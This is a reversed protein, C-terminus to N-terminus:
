ISETDQLQESDISNLHERLKWNAPHHIISSDIKYPGIVKFTFSRSLLDYYSATSLDELNLTKYIAASFTYTGTGLLLASYELDIHIKNGRQMDVNILEGCHRTIWRGGDDFILIVPICGYNGTETAEVEMLFNVQDGTEIVAIPKNNHDLISVDSIILGTEQSPWRSISSPEAVVTKQSVVAMPDAVTEQTAETVIKELDNNAEPIQGHEQLVEKMLKQTLWKSQIIPKDNTSLQTSCYEKELKRSYAEYSKVLDLSDGQMVIEGNELWISEDCFQLVQTMSHSVLLLTCGNDTLRKMREASKASFYADGAGMVEDIVLIEPKIATAVAFYLRSQMGLSYTKLPQHIFDGLETFDIIDEVTQQYQEAPLGNFLLASKINELGTFEPHFGLGMQMLAQITGNVVVTGSTPMFNQTILKLLTTKGAGNRGIIGLRQGKKIKLNINRLANFIEVDKAPSFGLLDLMQQFKKRYLKYSKSVNDLSIVISDQM